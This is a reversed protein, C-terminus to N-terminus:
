SYNSQYFHFDNSLFIRCFMFEVNFLEIKYLVFKSIGQEYLFIPLECVIDYTKNFLPLNNQSANRYYQLNTQLKYNAM